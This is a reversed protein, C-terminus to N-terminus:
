NHFLCEDNQSINFADMWAIPVETAELHDAALQCHSLEPLVRCHQIAEPKVDQIEVGLNNRRCSGNNSQIGVQIIALVQTKIKDFSTM